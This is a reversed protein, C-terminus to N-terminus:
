LQHVYISVGSRTTDSLQQQQQTTSSQHLRPVFIRGKLVFSLSAQDQQQRSKFVCRAMYEYFKARFVLQAEADARSDISSKIEGVEVVVTTQQFVDIKGRVDIELEEPASVASTEPNAAFGILLIGPGACTPFSDPSELWQKIRILKAGISYKKNLMAFGILNNLGSLSTTQQDEELLSPNTDFYQSFIHDSRLERFFSSLFRQLVNQSEIETQVRRVLNPILDSNVDFLLSVADYVNKLVIPESYKNGFQKAISERLSREFLAGQKTEVRSLSRRMETVERELSAQNIDMRSVASKMETVDRLMTNLLSVITQDM